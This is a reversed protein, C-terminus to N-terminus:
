FPASIAHEYTSDLCEVSTVASTTLNISVPFATLQSMVSRLTYKFLHCDSTDEASSFHLKLKKM